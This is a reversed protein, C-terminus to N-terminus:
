EATPWNFLQPLRKREDEEYAIMEDPTLSGNWRGRIDGRKGDLTDRIFGMAERYRAVAADGHREADARYEAGGGFSHIM